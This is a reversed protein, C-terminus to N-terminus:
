RIELTTKRDALTACHSSFVCSERPVDIANICSNTPGRRRKRVVRLALPQENEEWRRRLDVRNSAIDTQLEM